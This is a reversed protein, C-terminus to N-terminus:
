DSDMRWSYLIDMKQSLKEPVEEKEILNENETAGTREWLFEGDSALDYKFDPDIMSFSKRDYLQRYGEKIEHNFQRNFGSRGYYEVKALEGGIESEEKGAMDRILRFLDVHSYLKEATFKQELDSIDKKGFIVLPVEIVEKFTGFHHDVLRVGHKEYEGILEGHDGVLLFVTDEPAEKYLEEVLKDVYNISAEYAKERIEFDRETVEEMELMGDISKFSTAKLIDERSVDALFRDKQDENFTYAAHAAMLNVFLFRDEGKELIKQAERITHDSETPNYDESDTKLKRRLHRFFTKMSETDGRRLAKSFFDSYKELRSGYELDKDWVERWTEGEEQEPADSWFYDFEEGFGLSESILSNESLGFTEFGQEKLSEILENDKDFFTNQTTFGHESPLEGTFITAHAPLTWPSNSYYNDVVIKEELQSVFPMVQKSHGYMSLNRARLTDAVLLVINM